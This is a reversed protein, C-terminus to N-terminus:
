EGEQAVVMLESDLYKAKNLLSEALDKWQVLLGLDDAQTSGAYKALYADNARILITFLTGLEKLTM